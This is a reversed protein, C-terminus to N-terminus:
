TDSTPVMDVTVQDRGAREGEGATLILDHSGPSLTVEIVPGSGLDGDRSSTWHLQDQEPRDEERWYGQGSLIVPQGRDLRVGDQPNLIFTQCPRPPLTFPRSDATTTHFGDTALVRFMCSDGGPLQDLSINAQSEPTVMTVPIWSRGATNSYAVLYHLPADDPHRAWWTIDQRGGPPEPPEWTVRVEPAHEPVAIEAVPERDLLFRISRCQEDWRVKGMILLDDSPQDDTCPVVAPVRYVALPTGRLDALEVQIPSVPDEVAGRPDDTAFGPFLTLRTRGSVVAQLTVFTEGDPESTM